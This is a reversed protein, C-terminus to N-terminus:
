IWIGCLAHVNNAIYMYTSTYYVYSSLGLVHLNSASSRVRFCFSWLFYSWVYYAITSTGKVFEYLVM